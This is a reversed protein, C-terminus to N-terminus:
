KDAPRLPPMDFGKGLCRDEIALDYGIEALWRRMCHKVPSRHMPRKDHFIAYYSQSLAAASWSWLMSLAVLEMAIHFQWTSSSEVACCLHFHAPRVKAKAEVAFTACLTAMVM